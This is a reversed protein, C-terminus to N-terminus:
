YGIPGMKRRVTYGFQIFYDPGMPGVRHGWTADWQANRGVMRTLGMDYVWNPGTGNDFPAFVFAEWFGALGAILDHGISLTVAKQTFRGTSGAVRAANLNGSLGFGWPVDKAWLLKFGPDFKGSTFAQAGTPLGVFPIVGLAPLWKSEKHFKYKLGFELDGVGRLAPGTAHQSLFGDSAVRLEWKKAIGFRLLPTGLSFTKTGSARDMEFVTGMENQMVGRGVVEASETFDPRDTVLEGLDGAPREAQARVPPALGLLAAFCLPLFKLHM